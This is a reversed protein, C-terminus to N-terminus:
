LAPPVVITTAKSPKNQKSAEERMEKERQQMILKEQELRQKEEAMQKKEAETQKAEEERRQAEKQAAAELRAKAEKAPTVFIGQPYRALYADFDAQASSNRISDWYTQEIAAESQAGGRFYFDGEISGEIWPEQTGNSAQKVKSVVRKIVQEIPLNPVDMATLLNQTYLGNKGDGDRAVSGPRTAFSIMTGSPANVKALGGETSRFSRTYPNNRCADLFVLNLRTQGEAMVEFVKNVDLSQLPIDDESEIEADVAPLYNVGKVQLGHGAYFFLAVAGPKLQTRFERLARGIQKQQLNEYEIVTFGLDKLKASMARADNVPNKLPASKYDANGIVLALKQTSQEPTAVSVALNRNGEARAGAQTQGPPAGKGAEEAQASATWFLFMSSFMLLTHKM